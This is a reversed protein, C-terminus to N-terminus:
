PQADTTASVPERGAANVAPAPVTTETPRTLSSTRAILGKAAETVTPSPSDVSSFSLESTSRTLV